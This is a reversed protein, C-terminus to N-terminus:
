AAFRRRKAKGSAMAEAALVDAVMYTAHMGKTGEMRRLGRARCKQALSHLQDAQTKGPVKWREILEQASLPRSQAAPKLGAVLLELKTRIDRLEQEIGKLEESM